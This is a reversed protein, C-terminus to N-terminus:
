ILRLCNRRMKQSTVLLSCKKIAGTEGLETKVTHQAQSYLSLITARSHGGIVPVLEWRSSACRMYLCACRRPEYCWTPDLVGAKKMAEAAVPITSNVPNTVVCSTANPCTAAVESIDRIISANTQPFIPMDCRQRYTACMRLASCYAM